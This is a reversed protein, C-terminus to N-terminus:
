NEKDSKQNESLFKEIVTKQYSNIEEKRQIEESELNLADMKDRMRGVVQESDESDKSLMRDIRKLFLMIGAYCVPILFLFLLLVFILRYM